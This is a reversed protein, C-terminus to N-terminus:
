GNSSGTTRHPIIWWAILYGIVFPIIGTIVALIVTVLRVITPDIDMMEAVGGCVGAIKKDSDSLFLRRM